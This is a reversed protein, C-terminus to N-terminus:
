QGPPPAGGPPPGGPGGGPAAGADGGTGKEDIKITIAVHGVSPHSIDPSVSLNHGDKRYLAVIRRLDTKMAERSIRDGAKLKMASALQASSIETNGSFTIADIVPSDTGSAGAPPGGPPPAQADVQTQWACTSLLATVTLRSMLPILRM